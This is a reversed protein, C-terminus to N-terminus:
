GVGRMSEVLAPKQQQAFVLAMVVVYYRGTATPDIGLVLALDDILTDLVDAGDEADDPVKILWSKRRRRGQPGRDTAASASSRRRRTQGCFPCHESGPDVTSARQASEPSPPQPDLPGLAVYGIPEHEGLQEVVYCWTFIGDILRIAAKHGGVRGTVEDHHKVCLGTLNAYLTGDILVWGYDGGLQSRRVIHHAHDAFSGCSPHSCHPGVKFLPGKEGRLNWTDVAPLTV